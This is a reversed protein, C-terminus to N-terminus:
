NEKNLISALCRTTTTEKNVMIIKKEGCPVCYGTGCQAVHYM